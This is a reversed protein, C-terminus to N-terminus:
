NLRGKWSVKGVFGFVLLYLMYFPYVLQYFFVQLTNFQEQFAYTCLFADLEGKILIMLITGGWNGLFMQYCAFAYYTMQVMLVFLGFATAFNDGVKASKSLWRKRQNLGEILTEPANTFVKLNPDTLLSISKKQVRFAKLLFQDDGSPIAFDNRKKEVEEYTSKRFLLNAGSATIPRFIASLAVNAQTQLQYDMAFFGPVLKSGRMEAPLIVLDTWLHTKLFEFYDPLMQIDADWTIVFETSCNQIGKAIASKKGKENASLQLVVNPFPLNQLLERSDDESHDDIFIIEKPFSKLGRISDLLKKLNESENRFPILVTLHDLSNNSTSEKEKKKAWYRGLLFLGILFAYSALFVIVELKIKFLGM